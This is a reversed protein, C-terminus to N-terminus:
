FGFNPNTLPGGPRNLLRAGTTAGGGGGFLGGFNFGGSGIGSALSAFFSDFQNARALGPNAALAAIGAPTRSQVGLQGARIPLTSLDSSAGQLALFQNLLAAERADAEGIAAQQRGLDARAQAEFFAALEPNANDEGGGVGLRGRKNLNSRLRSLADEEPKRSLARFRELANAEVQPRNFANLQRVRSLAGQQSQGLIQRFPKSLQGQAGGPGFIISGFPGSVNNAQAAAAAAAAADERSNNSLFGGLVSSGLSLAAGLPFPM